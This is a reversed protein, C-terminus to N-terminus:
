VSKTNETMCTKLLASALARGQSDFVVSMVHGKHGKLTHLLMGSQVDWLKVTTDRSGIALTDGRPDFVVSTVQSKHSELTRVLKVGLPLCGEAGNGTPPPQTRKKASM